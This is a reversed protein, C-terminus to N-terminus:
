RNGDCARQATSTQTNSHQRSVKVGFQQEDDVKMVHMAASYINTREHIVLYQHVGRRQQREDITM